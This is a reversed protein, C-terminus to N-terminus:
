LFVGNFSGLKKIMVERQKIMKDYCKKQAILEDIQKKLHSIRQQKTFKEPLLSTLALTEPEGDSKATM